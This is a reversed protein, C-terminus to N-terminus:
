YFPAQTLLSAFYGLSPTIGVALGTSTGPTIINNVLHGTLVLAPRKFLQAGKNGKKKRRPASGKGKNKPM